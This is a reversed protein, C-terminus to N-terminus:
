TNVNIVEVEVKPILRGQLHEEASQVFLVKTVNVRPEYQRIAEIIETRLRVQAAPTPADLFTASVGFERDLPVSGKITTIIMKVNQIIEQYGTAGLNVVSSAGSSATILIRM